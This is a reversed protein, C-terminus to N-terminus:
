QQQQQDHTSPSRCATTTHNYLHKQKPYTTLTPHAYLIHMDVFYACICVSIVYLFLMYFYYISLMGVCVVRLHIPLTSVNYKLIVNTIATIVVCGYNTM